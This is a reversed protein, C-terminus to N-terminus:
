LKEQLFGAELEDSIIKNYRDFNILTAFFKIDVPFKQRRIIEKWSKVFSILNETDFKWHYEDEQDSIIVFKSFCEMVSADFSLNFYKNNLRIKSLVEDICAHHYIDTLFLCLPFDEDNSEVVDIGYKDKVVKLKMVKM